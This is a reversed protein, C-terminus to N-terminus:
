ADALIDGFAPRGGLSVKFSWLTLGGVFLLSLLTLHSYWSTPDMTLPFTKLMDSVVLTVIFTVWGFRFLFFVWLGWWVAVAAMGIPGYTSGYVTTALIVFAGGALWSRRTLLRLVFLVLFFYLM